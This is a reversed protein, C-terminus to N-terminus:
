QVILMPTVDSKTVVLALTIQDRVICRVVFTMHWGWAGTM